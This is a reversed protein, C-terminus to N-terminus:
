LTPGQNCQGPVLWSCKKHMASLETESFIGYMDGTTQVSSHGAIQSVAPLSMGNALMARIAAHRWNHPNWGHALGISKALRHFIEYVGTETLKGGRVGCFVYDHAVPPRQALYIRLADRTSPLYFVIRQKGQGGRGKETLIATCHDLDLDALRVAALGARRCATDAALLLIAYDRPNPRAAALMRDRDTATIGRRYQRPLPPLELRRAPSVRIIEEEEFWKFMRRASRVFQHLYHPSPGGTVEPHSTAGGWRTTRAALAARWGRLQDLTITDLELDGLHTVLTPLRRKYFTISGPAMIGAMSRLYIQIGISLLM